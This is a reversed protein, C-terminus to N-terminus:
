KNKIYETAEEEFDIGGEENWQEVYQQYEAQLDGETVILNSLMQREVARLATGYVSWSELTEGIFTYDTAIAEYTQNKILM